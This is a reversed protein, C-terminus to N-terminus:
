SEGASAASEPAAPGEGDDAASEPAAPGDGEDAASPDIASLDIVSLDVEDLDGGYEDAEDDDVESLDLVELADDDDAIGLAAEARRVREQWQAAEADRGLDELVVAYARFLEPSYDFALEPQLEPIELEALAAETQGLDLRAGSMAIALQVRADVSLESRPVSRGLELGKEARGLGRECDVMLALQENSGSIRRETRLERLALAFDGIAYATIAVTERVVAVRGARRQAALAHEHALAPDDDILRVAMVLHRAVEDANEKSLTKLDARAGRELQQPM